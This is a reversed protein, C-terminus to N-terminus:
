LLFGPCEWQNDCLEDRRWLIYSCCFCTLSSCILGAVAQRLWMCRSCCSDSTCLCLCAAPLTSVLQPVICCAILGSCWGCCGTGLTSCLFSKMAMTSAICPQCSQSTLDCSAAPQGAAPVTATQTQSCSMVGSQPDTLCRSRPSCPAGAPAM